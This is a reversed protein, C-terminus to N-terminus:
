TDEGYHKSEMRNAKRLSIARVRGGRLTFILVHLAEDLLGVSRYRVEGYDRRDDVKTFASELEFEEARQLSIGHKRRNEEDKVPDFEVGM